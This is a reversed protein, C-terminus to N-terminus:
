ILILSLFFFFDSDDLEDSEDFLLPLDELFPFFYFFFLIDDDESDDADLNGVLLANILNSGLYFSKIPM